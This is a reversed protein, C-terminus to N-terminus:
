GGGRLATAQKILTPPVAIYTIVALALTSNAKLRITAMGPEETRTRDGIPEPDVNAM